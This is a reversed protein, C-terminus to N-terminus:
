TDVLSGRIEDCMKNSLRMGIQDERFGWIHALAWETARWRVNWEPSNLCEVLITAILAKLRSKGALLEDPFAKRLTEQDIRRARRPNLILECIEAHTMCLGALM